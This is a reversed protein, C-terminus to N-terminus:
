RVAWYEFEDDVSPGQNLMAGTNEYGWIQSLAQIQQEREEPTQGWPYDPQRITTAFTAYLILSRVREPYTAAFLACLTGSENLGLLTVKETGAADLVANLDDMGEELTAVGSLRDSLGTGRRDLVILRAFSAMNEISDALPKYSEILDLNSLWTPVFALDLDGDGIVRYALRVSGNDVFQVPSYAM